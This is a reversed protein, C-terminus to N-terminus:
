VILAAAEEHLGETLHSEGAEFGVPGKVDKGVDGLEAHARFLETCLQQFRFIDGDNGARGESGAAVPM